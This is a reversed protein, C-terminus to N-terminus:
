LTRIYPICFPREYLLSKLIAYFFTAASQRSPISQFVHSTVCILLQNDVAKNKLGAKLLPGDLNKM